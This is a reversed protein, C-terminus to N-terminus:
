GGEEGSEWVAVSVGWSGAAARCMIEQRAGRGFVVLRRAERVRGMGSAGAMARAFAAALFADVPCLLRPAPESLTM